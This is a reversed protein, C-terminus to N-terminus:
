QSASTMSPLIAEWESLTHSGSRIWGAITNVSGARIRGALIPHALGDIQIIVLGPKDTRPVDRALLLKQVLLGYFSDSSATGVVSTLIVSIIGYVFSAVLAHFLTDVRVHPALNVAIYFVLIQLVLVLIGTLILSRPAVFTLLVPRVLANLLAMVIIVELSGLL